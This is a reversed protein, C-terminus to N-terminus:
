VEKIAVVLFTLEGDTSQWICTQIDTAYRKSIIFDALDAADNMGFYNNESDEFCEFKYEPMQMKLLTELEPWWAQDSGLNIISLADELQKNNGFM